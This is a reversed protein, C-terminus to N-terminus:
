PSSLLLLVSQVGTHYPLGKITLIRSACSRPDPLALRRQGSVVIAGCILLLIQRMTANARDM